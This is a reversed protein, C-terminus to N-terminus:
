GFTDTRFALDVLTNLYFCLGEAIFSTFKRVGPHTESLNSGLKRFISDDM